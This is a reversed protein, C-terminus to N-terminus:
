LYGNVPSQVLVYMRRYQVFSFLAKFYHNNNNNNISDNCGLAVFLWKHAIPDLFANM